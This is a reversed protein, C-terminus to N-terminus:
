LMVNLLLEDNLGKPALTNLTFIWFAERRKLLLDRDGGRPPMRVQEIGYFRLSSIDHKRDNFHIAVPYDRDNRRITSKHESIRQKLKRTTKGVYSLGCPCRLMYIVHTSSCTIVNKIPFQKGTHPHSFHTTKSTNNCQACNGCRYNGNPLPSLLTQVVSEPNRNTFHAHVLHDRLNRDRKFGVLPPDQFIAALEPDSQLIHWHKKFVSKIVYSNPSYTTMCTVSFKKSKKQSSTLLESRPKSLATNFAQDIWALPYGRQSFRSKMDEAKDIFDETSHCIRRLRYFQSKPLGRKLPTPHSSTAQLLTNRDTEKRYLTTTLISESRIVWMDLFHVKDKSHDLTFNLNHDFSNLLLVFDNLEDANGLYICFVDDIYRYWKLIRNLHRNKDPNNVFCHEFFGMYLNAYNPACISGMSTGSTQLYFDRDFVFYNHRMVLGALDLIFDNPPNVTNDRNQLFFKLAELGGEHPINTYLSTVDLTLLIADEPIDNLTSIKNIFDTSDKIYSPLSQAFPKIYFDVFESLPSLLSDTQAVIPRGPPNVLSKHLKPLTYFVPRIPHQNYLFDFEPKSIWGKLKAEELHSLVINQFSNTPDSTLKKYFRENGLQSLIEAKYKVSDQVCIAGGKDAPKFVVEKSNMLETLALSEEKSLNQSVRHYQNSTQLIDQEVLRCFTNISSNSVNPCFRSKPRFTSPPQSTVNQHSFFHKLKIQRFCKFLDVKLGFVNTSKKPVFSLGKSLLSTQANTLEMSSINIVTDQVAPQTDM